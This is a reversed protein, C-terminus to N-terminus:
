LDEIVSLLTGCLSCHQVFSDGMTLEIHSLSIYLRAPVNDQPRALANYGCM